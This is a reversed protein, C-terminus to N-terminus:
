GRNIPVGALAPGDSVLRVFQEVVEPDFHSGSGERVLELAQATTMPERYPRQSTVADYVDVVAFMRAALPIQPGALGRPYGSGDWREHHCAPIDLCDRLYEIGDLFSVALAPHQRMQAWEDDTLPGPKTLIADPVGMKGIDHLLAGRRVRVLEPGSTGMRQALAVTLLTVRETHQATSRDRLDLAAAWGLLTQDYADEIRQAAAQLHTSHQRILAYIVAATMLVFAIGKYSQATREADPDTIVASVVSDSVLIWVVSVLLYILVIRGAASLRWRSM